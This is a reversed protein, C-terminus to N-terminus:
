TKRRAIVERLDVSLRLANERTDASVPLVVRSQAPLSAQWDRPDSDGCWSHMQPVHSAFYPYADRVVEAPQVLNLLRLAPVRKFHGWQHRANACCHIGIGDYRHSLDSLEPLFFEEFIDPGVAGVEDASLTIGKPLYYDPCHAVFDAGYRSFWEDLFATVLQQVKAALERVSEPQDLMAVYFATKEWILAAVDMPTQIDVMGLAAHSGGRARLEDAIEFLIRLCPTDLDPVRLGSVETAKSIRPLAFPMDDESRHVQCGFAEAFIETGSYVSLYPIADDELWAAQERQALYQNWAWEIRAQKRDPHPLPRATTNESFRIFLMHTPPENWDYFKAWRQKRNRIIGEVETDMRNRSMVRFRRRLALGVLGLGAPEPVPNPLKIVPGCNVLWEGPPVPSFHGFHILQM